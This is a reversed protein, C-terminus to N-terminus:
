VGSSSSSRQHLENKYATEGSGALTDRDVNELIGPVVADVVQRGRQEELDGVEEGFGAMFFGRDAHVRPAGREGRQGLVDVRQLPAAHVAAHQVELRARGGQQAAKGLRAALM